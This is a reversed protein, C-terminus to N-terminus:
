RVRPPQIINQLNKEFSCGEVKKSEWMLQTIKQWIQGERYEWQCDHAELVPHLLNIGRTWLLWQLDSCCSWCDLELNDIDVYIWMVQTKGIGTEQMVIWFEAHKDTDWIVGVLVNNSSVDQRYLYFMKMESITTESQPLLQYHILFAHSSPGVSLDSLVWIKQGVQLM